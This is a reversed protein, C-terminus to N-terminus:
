NRVSIRHISLVQMFNLDFFRNWIFELNKFCYLVKTFDVTLKLVQKWPSFVNAATLEAIRRGPGAAPFLWCIPSNSKPFRIKTWIWYDLEFISCTQTIQCGPWNWFLNTQWGKFYKMSFKNQHQILVEILYWIDFLEERETCVQTKVTQWSKLSYLQEYKLYPARRHIDNAKKKIIWLRAYNNRGHM